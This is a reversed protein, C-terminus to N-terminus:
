TSFSMQFLVVALRLREAGVTLINEDPLVNTKNNDSSEATSTPETYFDFAIYCRKALLICFANCLECRSRFCVLILGVQRWVSVDDSDARFAHSQLSLPVSNAGQISRASVHNTLGAFSDSQM